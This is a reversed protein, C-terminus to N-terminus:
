GKNQVKKAPKAIPTGGAQYRFPMSLVISEILAQADYDKEKVQGVINDVTCSDMVTLGRGLAYGLMKNTINRVFLDKRQLLVAKLEAPGNIKTGDPLEGATDVPKGGEETRWRGIVDYNDLAFGLPDIRSHCSACAPNARHQTLRERVSKPAASQSEQELPPVNPPPPPPPTGLISDLVWAGRLVPSTRYPYSSVAMVAAMGLLGGRNSGEALEVRAPQQTVSKDVKMEYLSALRRTAITFKSDLLNLLSLRKAIIERFFFIPQYRIDSRIDEDKYYAPFLTADPAKEGGLERTRLWQEVFREAFEFSKPNRLMRGVQARLVEPDNLKGAAAIDFLLEDPMSGWLFYSLRSALAFDDLPRVEAQPNPAEARFLFQPSILVARIAFLLAADFPEGRKSAARMLDMYPAIDAETVPRRFARPLLIELNRRAAVEESVGPGPRVSLIRSRARSDAAAFQLVFKAADLYKESHIPSLFLTEAANDFGEGGAADVPLSRGLDLRVDLLDGITAAYEDRNLRRIPAVGPTPGSACAAARVSSDVWDTFKEREDLSPAPSGKPPMEGNRVRLAAGTWKQPATRLSANSDVAQLSFGGAGKGQHCTQCYTKLFAQSQEFSQPSAPQVLAALLLLVARSHSPTVTLSM